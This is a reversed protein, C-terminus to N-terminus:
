WQVSGLSRLCMQGHFEPGRTGKRSKELMVNRDSKSDEDSGGKNQLGIPTNRM